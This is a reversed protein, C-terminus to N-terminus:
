DWWLGEPLENLNECGNARVIVLDEVRVGGLDRRYLAPEVTLADGEVLEVGRDDLLPPEHVELGIGHGTGHPYFVTEPPDNPLPLGIRYGRETFLDKVARHVEAGTAGTRCVEIAAAKAEVVAEHMERLPASIPGRCLTRTCDGHYRSHLDIPFVDIIVPQGIRIPGAGHQHCDAGIPGAAAISDDPTAVGRQMLYMSIAARLRESTLPEGDDFLTDDRVEADRMLEFAHRISGETARQATRLQEVEWDDKRRRELVGLGRDCEVEIGSEGLVDVFLLPLMQDSRVSTVGRQKLLAAAAQAFSTNRDPSLRDAPVIEEPALAEDVRGAQRVRELEINRIIVTRRGAEDDIVVTMDGAALRIRHYVTPYRNPYGALLTTHGM